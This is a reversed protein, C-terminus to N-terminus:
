VRRLSRPLEVEDLFIMVESPSPDSNSRDRCRRGGSRSAFHTPVSAVPGNM